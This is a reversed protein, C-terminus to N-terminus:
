RLYFWTKIRNFRMSLFRIKDCYNIELNNCLYDLGLVSWKGKRSVSCRLKSKPVSSYRTAIQRKTKERAREVIM